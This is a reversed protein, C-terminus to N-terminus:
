VQRASVAYDSYAGKSIRCSLRAGFGSEKRLLRSPLAPDPPPDRVGKYRKDARRNSEKRRSLACSTCYMKKNGTKEILDGCQRCRLYKKHSRVGYYKKQFCLLERDLCRCIYGTYFHDETLCDLCTPLTGGNEYEELLRCRQFCRRLIDEVLKKYEEWSLVMKELQARLKMQEARTLAEDIQKTVQEPDM